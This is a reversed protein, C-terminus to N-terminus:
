RLNPLIGQLADGVAHKYDRYEEATVGWSIGETSGPHSVQNANRRDFLGRIKVCTENSVNKAELFAAVKEADYTKARGRNSDMEFCISHFENLLHNLAVSYQSMRESLVRLRVQELADHSHKLSRIQQPSLDYYGPTQSSLSGEEFKAVIEEMGKFQKLKGLIDTDAFDTQCLYTLMLYIDNTTLIDQSCLFARFNSKASQDLLLVIIIPVPAVRVLSFNFGDFIMSIRKLNDQKSLLQRVRNDFVDKLIEDQLEHKFRVTIRSGKLEELENLINRAKSLPDENSDDDARHYNPSVRKLSKEFEIRDDERCLWFLRTKTNLRLEFEYYLLDAIRLTLSEVIQERLEPSVSPKFTLCIATDDTYRIIQYEAIEEITKIQDEIRLDAFTLYLFGIFSSVLDNDAQPIGSNGSMLYRFFSIIQDRSIVDFHWRKQETAKCYKELMELLVPISICDYYNQIDISIVVKDDIRDDRIQAQMDRRFRKYHRRYYITNENIVLGNADFHLLGGYYSRIKVRKHYYGSLFEQSLRVLYIGISYYLARLPYTFFRYNRLGLSIKPIVYSYIAFEKALGYFLNNAIKEEFYDQERLKEVAPGLREYYFNSLNAFHRNKRKAAVQFDLLRLSEKWLNPTIFYGLTTDMDAIADRLELPRYDSDGLRM